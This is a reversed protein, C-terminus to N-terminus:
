PEDRAADEVVTSRQGSQDRLAVAHGDPEQLVVYRSLLALDHNQDRNM